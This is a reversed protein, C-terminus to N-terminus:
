RRWGARCVTDSAMRRLRRVVGAVGLGFALLTFSSPEPTGSTGSITLEGSLGLGEPFGGVELEWAGPLSYEGITTPLPGDLALQGLGEGSEGGIGIAGCPASFQSSYTAFLFVGDGPFVGGSCNLAEGFAILASNTGDTIDFPTFSLTTAAGTILDPSTFSFDIPEGVSRDSFATFAFSYTLDASAPSAGVIVLSLLCAPYGLAKM